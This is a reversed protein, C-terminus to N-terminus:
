KDIFPKIKLITLMKKRLDEHNLTVTAANKVKKVIEWSKM